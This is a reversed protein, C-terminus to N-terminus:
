VQMEEPRFLYGEDLVVFNKVSISQINVLITFFIHMFTGYLAITM